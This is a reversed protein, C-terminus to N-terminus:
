ALLERNRRTWRFYLWFLLPAGLLFTLGVSHDLHVHSLFIDLTPTGILDRARFIGTGADLLIGAEPIMLCATDRRRNPHYGATGLFHLRM